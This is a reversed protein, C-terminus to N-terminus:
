DTLLRILDKQSPYQKVLVDYSGHEYDSYDFGPSVTCGILAVSGGEKLHAGQWAGKPVVVQPVCGSAIDNGFNVVRSTGDEFLHLMEIPDGYYFHFVEDSKLRHMKSLAKDTLLYYIATSSNREGEYRTSLADKTLIDASRYTEIFYGGEEPHPQLKFKKIIDEVGLM